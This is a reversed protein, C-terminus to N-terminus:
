DMIIKNNTLDNGVKKKACCLQVQIYALGELIQYSEVTDVNLADTIKVLIVGAELLSHRLSSVLLKTNMRSSSILNILEELVEMKKIIPTSVTQPFTTTTMNQLTTLKNSAEELFKTIEHFQVAM